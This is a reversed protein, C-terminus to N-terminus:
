NGPPAADDSRFRWGARIRRLIADLERMRMAKAVAGIVLLGVAAAPVLVALSGAMNKWPVRGELWQALAFCAIGGAASAFGIKFFFVWVVSVGRNRTRGSLLVFLVVAYVAIGISSALALGRYQMRAALYAYLPLNLFTIATGVIAPTLTNRTAYFGRALISQAGWAFMGLSFFALAAATANFDTARLRTDSFVFYVLPRNLAITLASIPVLLFLLGRLTDNLLRNLEEHRKESYLQALFPFSAVGVAQGVVALPVRMLTKAYSLWTISGQALYSGFWRIIWDDTFVLSLALMIPISLKVFLRFGPHRLDFNPSFRAGARRAGYIQLLFNGSLAGVLVGVSFGTIGIRSALVLGGCIIALNYIVPALSPVFFQSKAYQVASLIGGLYFCFQAPLMLRTLFITQAMESSKFGPAMLAVIHPALVEGAAVLLILALGMVTIVTSFVHWGEEEKADALQKAFVPIFTVSLAGGAVLYNLFDPLTFAANYADTAANAGIEHAVTWQRFFGLLRSALVGAMVIGASLLVKRNLSSSAM